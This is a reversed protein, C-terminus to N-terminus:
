GAMLVNMTAWGDLGGQYGAILVKTIVWRDLQENNELSRPALLLLDSM